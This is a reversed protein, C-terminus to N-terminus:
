VLQLSHPLPENLAVAERSTANLYAAGHGTHLAGGGRISMRTGSPQTVHDEGFRM